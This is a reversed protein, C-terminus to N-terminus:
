DGSPSIERGRLKVSCGRQPIEALQSWILACRCFTRLSFGTSLSGSGDTIPSRPKMSKITSTLRFTPLPSGKLVILGVLSEV